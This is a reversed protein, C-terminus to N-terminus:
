RTDRGPSSCPYTVVSRHRRSADSPPHAGHGSRERPLETLICRGSESRRTMSRQNPQTPLLRQRAAPRGPKGRPHRHPGLAATFLDLWDAARPWNEPLRLHVRRASRVPRAPVNILQRRITATIARAHFRSALAGAARTLNFAMAALVLWAGNANFRGSPLHALSSDKLDAIVQEIIAHRRHGAEAQILTIPSDTFM